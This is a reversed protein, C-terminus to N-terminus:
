NASKSQSVPASPTAETAPTQAAATLADNVVTKVISELDSTSTSTSSGTIAGGRAFWYSFLMGIGTILSEQITGGLHNTVDLVGTLILIIATIAFTMIDHKSSM